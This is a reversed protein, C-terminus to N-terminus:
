KSKRFIVSAVNIDAPKVRQWIVYSFELHFEVSYEFSCEMKECNGWRNRAKRKGRCRRGKIIKKSSYM